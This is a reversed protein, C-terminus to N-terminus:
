SRRKLLRGILPWSTLALLLRQGAPARYDRLKSFGVVEARYVLEGRQNTATISNFLLGWGPISNSARKDTVILEYSVTDGPRVPVKFEMANVGPSPGSTGPEEGLGRLRQEEAELADVMRRHGVSVTHWGSAVLGGFHSHKAAEPDLHFYQPDYLSAFRVIEEATFTHSGLPFVENLTINEFWRTM